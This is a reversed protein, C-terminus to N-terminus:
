GVPRRTVVATIYPLPRQSPSTSPATSPAESPALAGGVRVSLSARNTTYFLSTGIPEANWVYDQIYNQYNAAEIVKSIRESSPAHAHDTFFSATLDLDVLVTPVPTSYFEEAINSLELSGKTYIGPYALFLINEYFAKTVEFLGMFEQLTPQRVTTEPFFGYGLQKGITITTIPTVSPLMSTPSGTTSTATAQITNKFISGEPFVDPLYSQIFRTLDANQIAEDVESTSPIDAGEVFYTVDAHRISCATFTGAVDSNSSIETAILMLFDAGFENMLEVTYFRNLQVMLGDIETQVPVRGFTQSMVLNIASSTSVLGPLTPSGATPVTPLVPAISMPTSPIPPMTMPIPPLTFPNPPPNTPNPNIPPMTMSIPPLTVSFPPLTFPIPAPNTPSPDTPNPNIPPMTMSIPPSTVSFPPLTFPIPAPNTPSPDTPNPNIPSPELSTIRSPAPSPTISDGGRESFRARQTASFITGSPEANWVYNQVYDRYDAEEMVQFISDASPTNDESAGFSVLLDFDVIVPSPCPLTQEPLVAPMTCDFITVVNSLVVSGPVFLDPYVSSLVQDYFDETVEFLGAYEESSPERITTGSFFGYGLRAGVMRRTIEPPATPATTTPAPIPSTTPAPTTTTVFTVSDETLDRYISDEPEANAAYQTRFIELDARQIALDVVQTDVMKEGDTSQLSRRQRRRLNVLFISEGLFDSTSVCTIDEGTVTKRVTTATSFNADMIQFDIFQTPTTELPEEGSALSQTAVAGFAEAIIQQYYRAMEVVVGAEEEETPARALNEFIMTGSTDVRVEQADSCIAGTICLIVALGGAGILTGAVLGAAGTATSPVVAVQLNESFGKNRALEPDSDIYEAVQEGTLFYVTDPMEKAEEPTVMYAVASHSDLLEVMATQDQDNLEANQKDKGRRDKSRAILSAGGSENEAGDGIERAPDMNNLKKHRARSRLKRKEEAPSGRRLHKRMRQRSIVIPPSSQSKQLGHDSTTALRQRVNRKEKPTGIVSDSSNVTRGEKQTPLWRRMTTFKSILIGDGNNTTAAKEQNATAIVGPFTACLLLAAWFLRNFLLTRFQIVM